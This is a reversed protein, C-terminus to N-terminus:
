GEVVRADANGCQVGDQGVCRAELGEGDKRGHLAGQREVREGREGVGAELDQVEIQRVRVGLRCDRRAGGVRAVGVEEVRHERVAQGGQAREVHAVRGQGFRQRARAHLAHAGRGDEADLVQAADRERVALGGGARGQLFQLDVRAPM